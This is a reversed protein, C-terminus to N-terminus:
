DRNNRGGDIVLARFIDGIDSWLMRYGEDKM